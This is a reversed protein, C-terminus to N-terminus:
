NKRVEITVAFPPGGAPPGRVPQGEANAFHAQVVPVRIRTEGEAAAVFTYIFYEAGGPNPVRLWSPIEKSIPHIATSSIQPDGYRSPGIMGITLEIREGVTVIFRQGNNKYDLKLVVASSDAYLWCPWSFALGFFILYQAISAHQRM